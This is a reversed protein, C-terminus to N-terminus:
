PRDNRRREIQARLEPSPELPRPANEAQPVPRKRREIELLERSPKLVPENPEM